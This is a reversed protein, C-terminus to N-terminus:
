RACSATPPARRATVCSINSLPALRKAFRPVSRWATLTISVSDANLTRSLPFPAVGRRTDGYVRSIVLMESLEALAAGAFYHHAALSVSFEGDLIAAVRALKLHLAAQTHPGLIALDIAADAGVILHVRHHVLSDTVEPWGIAGDRTVQQEARVGIRLQRHLPRPRSDGHRNVAEAEAM